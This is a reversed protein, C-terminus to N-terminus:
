YGHIVQEIVVRKRIRIRIGIYRAVVCGARPAGLHEIQAQSLVESTGCHIFRANLPCAVVVTEVLGLTTGAM